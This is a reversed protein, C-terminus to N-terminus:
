QLAFEQRFVFFLRCAQRFILSFRGFLRYFNQPLTKEQGPAFLSPNHLNIRVEGHDLSQFSDIASAL